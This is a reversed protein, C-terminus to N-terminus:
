PTQHVFLLLSLLYTFVLSSQYSQRIKKKMLLKPLALAVYTIILWSFRHEAQYNPVHFITHTSMNRYATSALEFTPNKMVLRLLFLAGFFGLLGLSCCCCCCMLLGVTVNDDSLWMCISYMMQRRWIFSWPRDGASGWQPLRHLMWVNLVASCCLLSVTPCLARERWTHGDARICSLLFSTSFYHQRIKM